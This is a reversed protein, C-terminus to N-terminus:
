SCFCEPIRPEPKYDKIELSEALLFDLGTDVGLHFRTVKGTRDVVFLAPISEVHWTDAIRHLSDVSVPFPLRASDVYRAALPKEDDISVGM